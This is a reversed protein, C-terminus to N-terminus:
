TDARKQYTGGGLGKKVITHPASPAPLPPAPQAPQQSQQQQEENAM